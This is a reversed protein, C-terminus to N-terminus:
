APSPNSAACDCVVPLSPTVRPVKKTYCDLQLGDVAGAAFDRERFIVAGAEAFVVEDSRHKSNIFSLTLSSRRSRKKKKVEVSPAAQRIKPCSRCQFIGVPTVDKAKITGGSVAVRRPPHM